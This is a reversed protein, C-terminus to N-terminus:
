AREAADPIRLHHKLRSGLNSALGVYYLRDGRYLAYIGRRRRVYNQILRQYEELAKRSVRELHQCVLQATQNSTQAM